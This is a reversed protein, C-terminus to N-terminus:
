VANLLSEFMTHAASIAQAAAQYAQQYNTLTVAQQDTSVGAITQLNTTATTVQGATAAALQQAAQANAGLGTGLGIVAQQLSGATTTGAATWLAALRSANSGSNSAGPSLTLVDGSDPTGSVPLQWYNGAAAGGSPYAIAVTGGAAGLTGSAITVSPSAATSVTYAGGSAFNLQLTQGFYSAPVIAAGSAPTASVTDAGVSITGGNNNAISGDSQLVGPTSVYPDAAAIANPDATAVSIGSAADPAPNLVYKDGVAATGSTIAVTLGAYSPPVGTAAYTLGSAQDKVSWAAAGQYTLLFPGGDTPLASSNTIQASVVANGTNAAQATVSPAPVTFLAAGQAGAPTLGENQGTNVAGAVLSAITNLSQLAATGAQYTAVAAGIAGDAGTTTVATACAGATLTPTAGNAGTTVSLPQAGSQDLLVTGGTVVIVAGDPQTIASVSILNSLSNLAAQQQDLLGPENPANVFSQNITALQGLLTNATGVSQQLTTTAGSISSNLASAASQFAGTVNGADGLVTQRQATSTPNAALTSIDQFLQNIAGQADGNNTLANSITTLATSQSSAATGASNASRLLGAAFGSAARIIQPAQVGSGPQGPAGGATLGNVTEVAYGATTDNALNNAVGNIGAEFLELGSLATNIASTIGSM